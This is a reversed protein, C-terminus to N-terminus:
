HWAAAGALPGFILLMVVTLVLGIAVLAYTAVEMRASAEASAWWPHWAPAAVAALALAAVVALPLM